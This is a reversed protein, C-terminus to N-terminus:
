LRAIRKASAEFLAALEADADAEDDQQNIMRWAATAAAKARKNSVGAEHLMEEIDRAGCISKIRSVRARPNCPTSVLSVEVLDAEVVNLTGGVYSKKAPIFGVSLGQMAGSKLLAYAERGDNADLALRGEVELGSPSETLGIWRGCPRKPDHHLLMAPATGTSKHRALSGSFASRAIVEGDRDIGTDSALGAFTGEDSLSKLDLRFGAESTM